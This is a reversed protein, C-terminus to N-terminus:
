QHLIRSHRQLFLIQKMGYPSTVTFRFHLCQRHMDFPEPVLNLFIWFMRYMNNRFPSRPITKLLYLLNAAPIKSNSNHRIPIHLKTMAPYSEWRACFSYRTSTERAAWSMLSPIEAFSRSMPFYLLRKDTLINSGSSTHLSSYRISSM